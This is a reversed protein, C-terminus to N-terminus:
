ADHMRWLPALIHSLSSPSAAVHGGRARAALRRRSHSRWSPRWSSTTPTNNSATCPTRPLRDLRVGDGCRGEVRSSWGRRVDWRRRGRSSPWDPRPRRSSTGSVRSRLTTRVARLCTTLPGYTDGTGLGGAHQRLPHDRQPLTRVVVGAYGVDIVRSDLNLALVLGGAVGALVLFSVPPSTARRRTREGCGFGRLLTRLVPLCAARVVARPRTCSGRASSGTRSSSGSCPSSRRPKDVFLAQGAQPPSPSPSRSRYGSTSSTPRSASAGTEGLAM